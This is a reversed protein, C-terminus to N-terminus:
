RLGTSVIKNEAFLKKKLDNLYMSIAKRKLEEKPTNPNCPVLIIVKRGNVCIEVNETYM